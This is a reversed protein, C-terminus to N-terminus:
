EEDGEAVGERCDSAECPPLRRECSETVIGDADSSDRLAM